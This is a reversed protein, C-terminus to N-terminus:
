RLLLLLLLLLAGSGLPAASVDELLKAFTKPVKSDALMGRTKRKPGGAGRRKRKSGGPLDHEAGTPEPDAADLQNPTTGCVVLEGAASGGEM